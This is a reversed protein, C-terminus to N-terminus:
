NASVAFDSVPPIKKNMNMKNEAKSKKIMALFRPNFSGCSMALSENEANVRLQEYQAFKENFIQIINKLLNIM